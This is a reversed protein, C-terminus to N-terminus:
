CYVDDSSIKEHDTKESTHARTYLACISMKPRCLYQKKKLGAFFFVNKRLFGYFFRCKQRRLRANHM